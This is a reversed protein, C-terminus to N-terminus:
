KDFNRFHLRMIKKDRLINSRNDEDKNKYEFTEFSADKPRWWTNWPGLEVHFVQLLGLSADASIDHTYFYRHPYDDTYEWHYLGFTKKKKWRREM